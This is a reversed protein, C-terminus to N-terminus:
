ILASAFNNVYKPLETFNPCKLKCFQTMALLKEWKRIKEKISIVDTPIIQITGIDLDLVLNGFIDSLWRKYTEHFFFIADFIHPAGGFELLFTSTCTLM